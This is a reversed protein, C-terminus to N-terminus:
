SGDAMLWLWLLEELRKITLCKPHRYSGTSDILIPIMGVSQAGLVDISYVDGIYASEEAKVKARLLALNFIGKDPKEMGVKSSDIIFDFYGALGLDKCIDEIRGDSNSIMALTLGSSKLQSLTDHTGPRVKIWLGSTKDQEKLIEAVQDIKQEEVGVEKLMVEFYRFARSRNTGKELSLMIQDIEERARCEAKLVQELNVTLDIKAIAKRIFEYDLFILTNGADFFLAKIKEPM